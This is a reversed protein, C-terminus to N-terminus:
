ELWSSGAEGGKEDTGYVPQKVTTETTKLKFDGKKILDLFEGGAPAASSREWENFSIM